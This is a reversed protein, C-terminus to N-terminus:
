RLLRFQHGKLSENRGQSGIKYYYHFENRYCDIKYAFKLKETENFIPPIIDGLIQLTKKKGVKGARSVELYNEDDLEGLFIEQLILNQEYKPLFKLRLNFNRDTLLQERQTVNKPLSTVINLLLNKLQTEKSVQTVGTTSESANRTTTEFEKEVVGRLMSVTGINDGNYILTWIGLGLSIFIILYKVDLDM